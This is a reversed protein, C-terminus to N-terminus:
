AGRAVREEECDERHSSRQSIILDKEATYPKTSNTEEAKPQRVMYIEGHHGFKPHLTCKAQEVEADLYSVLFLLRPHEDQGMTDHPMAEQGAQNARGYRV